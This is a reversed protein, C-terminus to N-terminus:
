RAQLRAECELDRRCAPRGDQFIKIAFGELDIKFGVFDDFTDRDGRLCSRPLPTEGFEARAVGHVPGLERNRNNKREILWLSRDFLNPDPHVTGSRGRQTRTVRLAGKHALPATRDRPRMTM